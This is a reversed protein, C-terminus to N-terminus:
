PQNVIIPLFTQDPVITLSVTVSFEDDVDGVITITDTYQGPELESIDITFSLITPAMGTNLDLTIWEANNTANWNLVGYGQNSIIIQGNLPVDSNVITEYSFSDMHIHLIPSPSVTIEAHTVNIEQQIASFELDQGWVDNLHIEALTLPVVVGPTAGKSISFSTQVLVANGSFPIDNVFNIYILGKEDDYYEIDFLDFEDSVKIDDVDDVVATDYALILTGGTVSYLNTAQITTTIKQGPIGMADAVTVSVPLLSKRLVINNPVNGPSPWERHVSYYHIMFIDENDITGDTNVDGAHQQEITPIIQETFIQLAIYADVTQVVGNGNLDGLVYASNESITFLGDMLELPVPDILDDPTYITTGGVGSIFEKLDLPTSQDPNGIILFEVEFLAGDGYLIPQTPSLFGINIRRTTGSVSSEAWQVSYQSTLATEAVNVVQLIDGDFELWIDSAAIQLGQANAIGVQVIGTEGPVATGSNVWLELLNLQACAINSALAVNNGSQIAEIQYCYTTDPILSIDEDFYITDSTLTLPSPTTGSISRSIRYQVVSPDNTANWNLQISSHGSEATLTIPESAPPTGIELVVFVHEEAEPDDLSSIIVTDTYIGATLGSTNAETDLIFPTSGSDQSLNLWTSSHVAEWNMPIGNAGNNSIQITSIPPNAEGEITNFNLQAPTVTLSYENPPLQPPPTYPPTNPPELLFVPPDCEYDATVHIGNISANELGAYADNDFCLAGEYSGSSNTAGTFLVVDGDDGCLEGGDETDLCFASSLTMFIMADSTSNDIVTIGNIDESDLQADSGDLFMSFSNTSPNLRIIDEDKASFGYNASGTTSFYHRSSSYRHYADIDETSLGSYDSGDIELPSHFVGDEYRIVDEDRVDGIDPFTESSTTSFWIEDNGRIFVADIEFNSADHTSENFLMKFQNISRHYCVIDGDEVDTLGPSQTRPLSYSGETTFCIDGIRETGTVPNLFARNIFAAAHIRQVEDDACFYLGNSNCGRTLGRWYMEEAVALKKRGFEDSDSLQLNDDEYIGFPFPLNDFINRNELARLIVLSIEFRTAPNGPYFNGNSGNVLGRHRADYIWDAYGHNLPVDNFLPEGCPAECPIYDTGPEGTKYHHLARLIFIVMHDRQLVDDPCYYDPGLGCGTTIAADFMSEVDKIFRIDDPADKITYYNDAGINYCILTNDETITLGPIDASTMVTMCIQEPEPSTVTVNVKAQTSCINGRDEDNLLSDYPLSQAPEITGNAKYYAANALMKAFEARTVYNDPYFKGNTHGNVIGMQTAQNIWTEFRTDAIDPYFSLNGNPIDTRYQKLIEVIVKVAAGRTLLNDRKFTGDTYGTFIKKAKLYATATQMDEPADSMDPFNGMNSITVDSFYEEWRYLMRATDGRNIFQNPYFRDGCDASTINSKALFEIYPLFKSDKWVDCFPLNDILCDIGLEVVYVYAKTYASAENKEFSIGNIWGVRAPNNSDFGQIKYWLAGDGPRYRIPNYAPSASPRPLVERQLVVAEDGEQLSGLVTASESASERVNLSQTNVIRIRIPNLYIENRRAMFGSPDVFGLEDPHNGEGIYYGPGIPWVNSPGRSSFNRMEFHLHSASGQNYITAVHDGMNICQGEVITDLVSVHAYVSYYPETDRLMHKIIIVAGPYNLDRRILAVQGKAVAYISKGAANTTSGITTWDEASHYKNYGQLKYANFERAIRFGDVNTPQRFQTAYGCDDNSM